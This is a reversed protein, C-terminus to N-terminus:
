VCCANLIMPGDDGTVLIQLVEPQGTTKSIKAKAMRGARFSPCGEQSVNM